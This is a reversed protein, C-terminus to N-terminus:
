IVLEDKPLWLLGQKLGWGDRWPTKGKRSLKPTQRPPPSAGRTSVFIVKEMELLVGFIDCGVLFLHREEGGWLWAPVQMAELGWRRDKKRTGLVWRRAKGLGGAQRGFEARYCM